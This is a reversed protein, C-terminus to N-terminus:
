STKAANEALLQQYLAVLQPGVVDIDFQKSYNTGWSAMAEHQKDNTLYYKLKNALQQVDKPNFLLDPQPEMVTAYGPNDGALVVAAGSAMAEILVIGFSEGGTSPFVSIDASAYYKPKEEESVFGVFEVTDQLQQQIVFRRLDELLPGKGCVVVRFKPLTQRDLLAIAELLFRCGKRPVLRGLFLITKTDDKYQILPVAAKFRQYDFVNPLVRSELRFTQLAFKKAASSVSLMQDIRKLSSRLWTGLLYNGIVPLKGDPLVHFTAVIATNPSAALIIRQALFPNHPTQVHLIDFQHDSLFRRLMRRSTPFPITTRNGNFRVSFNRALSHINPLDARKSQGVLYHVDHGQARLWEGVSIVYQQVGDPPDLSTDLVLGIKLLTASQKPM